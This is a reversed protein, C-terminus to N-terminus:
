DHCDSLGIGQLIKELVEITEIHGSWKMSHIQDAAAKCDFRTCTLRHLRINFKQDAIVAGIAQRVSKEIQTPNSLVGRWFLIRASSINRTWFSINFAVEHFSDQCTM